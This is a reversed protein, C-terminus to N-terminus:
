HYMGSSLKLTLELKDRSSTSMSHIVEKLRQLIDRKNNTNFLKRFIVARYKLASEIIEPVKWHEVHEASAGGVQVKEVM